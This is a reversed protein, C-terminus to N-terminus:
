LIDINIMTARTREVITRISRKAKSDQEPTYLTTVEVIMGLAKALEFLKKSGYERSNDIRQGKIIRDYQTKALRILNYIGIITSNKKSYFYAWRYLTARNTIITVYLKKKSKITIM